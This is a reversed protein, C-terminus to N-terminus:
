EDALAAVEAWAAEVRDLRARADDRRALAVLSVILELLALTGVHSDFPGVAGAAVDFHDAAVAAIPSLPGDSIAVVHHGARAAARVTEVVWRDYRRLDVAVVTAPRGELALDRRVAVDNGHLARVGPRIRALQAAFHAVIGASEEGSVLLVEVEADALRAVFAELRSTQILDLTRTVNEVEVQRHLDVPVRDPEARIREASPRLRRTMETRLAGQLDSFGDFGLKGALRIVTAVGAGAAEALEAVTGFAVLDPRDAIVGAVRREATTLRGAHARLVDDLTESVM